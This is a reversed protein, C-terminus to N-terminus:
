AAACRRRPAPNDRDCIAFRTLPDGIEWSRVPTAIALRAASRWSQPPRAAGKRAASGWTIRVASVANKKKMQDQQFTPDNRLHALAVPNREGNALSNPHETQPAANDLREFHQQNQRSEHQAKGTPQNPENKGPRRRPPSGPHLIKIKAGTNLPRDQCKVATSNRDTRSRRRLRPASRPVPAQDPHLLPRRVNKKESDM